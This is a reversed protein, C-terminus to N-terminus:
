RREFYGGECKVYKLDKSLPLVTIIALTKENLTKYDLLINDNLNILVDNDNKFFDTRLRILNGENNRDFGKLNYTKNRERVGCIIYGGNTNLFACITERLSVWENGTSLDKLEVISNEYDEFLGTNLTKEIKSIIDDILNKNKSM